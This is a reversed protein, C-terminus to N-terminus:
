LVCVCCGGGGGGGWMGVGVGLMLGRLFYDGYPSYWLGNGCGHV